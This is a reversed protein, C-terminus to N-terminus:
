PLWAVRRPKSAARWAAPFKRRVARIVSREREYLRGATVALAHDDPDSRAVSLWTEAAVAADQHEGLVDQVAALAKALAAAEGGIVGAVAEVAYRARKGHVRVAHWAADPGDPSLDVAGNVGRAGFAFRRWPAAVLRPLVESAAAQALPILRPAAAAALLRDLLALYRDCALVADLADLAEGHRAALEADIRAVASGDPPALPDAAATRRLRARLVEADRAAGLQAALWGLEARLERAWRGDLLPGFTRLDSRLRRCGVRMQHVATDGDPLEMRLRVLPDHGAIRAAGRRIANAVVDGARPKRALDAPPLLDPPQAADRGM